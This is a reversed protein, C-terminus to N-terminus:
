PSHSSEPAIASIFLIAVITATKRNSQMKRDDQLNLSM